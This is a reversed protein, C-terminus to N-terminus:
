SSKQQRDNSRVVRIIHIRMFISFTSSPPEVHEKVIIVIIASTTFKFFILVGTLKAHGLNM